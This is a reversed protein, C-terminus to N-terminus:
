FTSKIRAAILQATDRTSYFDGPKFQAADFQFESAEDIKYSAQINWEWGMNRSGTTSSLETSQLIGFRVLTSLHDGWTKEARLVYVQLGERQSHSGIVSEKTRGPADDAGDSTTLTLLYSAGPAPSTFGGREGIIEDNGAAPSNKQGSTYLADGGFRIGFLGVTGRVLALYATNNDSKNDSSFSKQNLISSVQLNKDEDPELSFTFGVWSYTSNGKVSQSLDRNLFNERTVRNILYLDFNSTKSSSLKLNVGLYRDKEPVTTQSADRQPSKDVAQALWLSTEVQGEQDKISNLRLASFNDSIILGGPDSSLPLLGAEFTWTPNFSQTLFLNRVEFVNSSMGGIQGGSSSDGFVMEGVEFVSTLKSKRKQLDLQLNAFIDTFSKKSDQQNSDFNTTTSDGDYGFNESSEHEVWAFGSWQVQLDQSLGSSDPKPSSTEKSEEEHRPPKVDEGAERTPTEAGPELDSYLQDAKTDTQAM